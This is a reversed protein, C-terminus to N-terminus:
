HLIIYDSILQDVVDANYSGYRTIDYEFYNSAGYDYFCALHIARDNYYAIVYVDYGDTEYQVAEVTYDDQFTEYYSEIEDELAAEDGVEIYSDMYEVSTDSDPHISVLTDYQTPSWEAPFDPIIITMNGVTVSYSGSSQTSVPSNSQNVDSSEADEKGERGNFLTSGSGSGDERSGALLSGNEDDEERSSEDVGEIHNLADPEYQSIIEWALNYSFDEDDDFYAKYVLWDKKNQKALAQATMNEKEIHASAAYCNEMIGDSLDGMDEIYVGAYTMIEDAVIDAFDEVDTWKEPAKGELIEFLLDDDDNYILVDNMVFPYEGDEIGDSLIGDPAYAKYGDPLEFEVTTLEVYGDESIDFSASGYKDSEVSASGITQNDKNEYDTSERGFSSISKGLSFGCGTLTTMAISGALLFSLIKKM